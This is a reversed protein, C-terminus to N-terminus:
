LTINISLARKVDNAPKRNPNKSFIEIPEAEAKSKNPLVISKIARKEIVTEIESKM